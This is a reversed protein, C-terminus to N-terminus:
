RVETWPVARLATPMATPAARRLRLTGRYRSWSYRWTEGAGHELPGGPADDTPRRARHLLRADRRGPLARERDHLPGQAAVDHVAGTRRTTRMRPPSRPSTRTRTVDATWTGDLPTAVTETPAPAPVNGCRLTDTGARMGEIAELAARAGADERLRALVPAVGRKIAAVDSRAARLLTFGTRGCLFAAGTESNAAISESAPALAESAAKALIARQEGTLRDYAARGMVITQTRPWLPLNATLSRADVLGDAGALTQTDLEALDLGDFGVERSLPEAKGGLAAFAADAM